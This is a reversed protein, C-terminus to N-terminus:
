FLVRNTINFYQLASEVNNPFHDILMRTTVVIKKFEDQTAFRSDYAISDSASTKRSSSKDFCNCICCFLSSCVRKYLTRKRLRRNPHLQYIYLIHGPLQLEPYQNYVNKMMKKVMQYAIVSTRLTIPKEIEVGRRDVQDALHENNTTCASETPTQIILSNSKMQSKAANKNKKSENEIAEVTANVLSSHTATKSEKFTASLQKQITSQAQDYGVTTQESDKSDQKILNQRSYSLNRIVYESSNDEDEDNEDNDDDAKVCSLIHNSKQENTSSREDVEEEDEYLEDDSVNSDFSASHGPRCINV